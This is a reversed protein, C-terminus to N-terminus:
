TKPGCGKDQSRLVAQGFDRIVHRPDLNQRPPGRGLARLHGRDPQRQRRAPFGIPPGRAFAADGGREAPGPRLIDGAGGKVPGGGLHDVLIAQAAKAIMILDGDRNLHGWGDCPSRRVQLALHFDPDTQIDAHRDPQVKRGIQRRFGVAIHRNYGGQDIVRHRPGLGPQGAHGARDRGAIGPQPNGGRHVQGGRPAVLHHHDLRAIRQDPHRLGIDAAGAPLQGRPGFHHM